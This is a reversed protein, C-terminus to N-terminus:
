DIEQSIVSEIMNNIDLMQNISNIANFARMKYLYCIAYCSIGAQKYRNVLICM